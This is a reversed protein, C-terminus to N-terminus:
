WLLHVNRVENMNALWTQRFKGALSEVDFIGAHEDYHKASEERMLDYLGLERYIQITRASTDRKLKV